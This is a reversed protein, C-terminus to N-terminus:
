NRLSVATKTTVFTVSESTTSWYTTLHIELNNGEQVVRFGGAPVHRAVISSVGDHEHVIVGPHEVGDLDVDLARWVIREVGTWTRGLQDAGTVRRFTPAVAVGQADFGGLSDIDAGRIVNAVAELNARLDEHARLSTHSRRALDNSSTFVGTFSALLTPILILGIMMETLTFGAQHAHHRM